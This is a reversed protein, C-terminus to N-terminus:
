GPGLVLRICKYKVDYQVTDLENADVVPVSQSTHGRGCEARILTHKAADQAQLGAQPLQIYPHPCYHRYKLEYTACNEQTDRSVESWERLDTPRARSEVAKRLSCTLM